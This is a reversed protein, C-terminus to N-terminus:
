RPAERAAASAFRARYETPTTGLRRAFVRRLTEDSGLGSGQAAATVSHGELLLQGARDLRVQELWRAPTTGLETRFLRTLHRASVAARAAMDALSHDAAPDAVM